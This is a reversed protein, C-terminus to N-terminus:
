GFALRALSPISCNIYRSRVGVKKRWIKELILGSHRPTVTPDFYGPHGNTWGDTRAADSSCASIMITGRPEDGAGRLQVPFRSPVLGHSDSCRENGFTRSWLSEYMSIIQLQATCSRSSSRRLGFRRPAAQAFLM